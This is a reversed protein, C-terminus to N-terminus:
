LTFAPPPRARVVRPAGSTGPREAPHHLFPIALLVSPTDEVSCTIVGASSTVFVVVVDLDADDYIGEIWSPDPPSAHALPMLLPLAALLPGLVLFRLIRRM